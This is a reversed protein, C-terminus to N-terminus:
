YKLGDPIFFVQDDEHFMKVKVEFISEIIDKTLVEKKGAAFVKGAKLIIFKNCYKSALNIDHTAMIISIGALTEKKLIDLIEIQHNLDLNATPEDLLILDTEQALARAIFVKQKQGGSLENIKRMALNEINVKELIRAVKKIDEKSPSGWEVHPKRGLLVANFVSTPFIVDESQAVRSIKKAIDKIGMKDISKEGIFVTGYRPKLLGDIIKLLTSKGSGNPGIIGIFDGRSIDFSINELAVIGNKYEFGIDQISAHRPYSLHGIVENALHLGSTITSKSNIAKKEHNPSLISPYHSVTYKSENKM